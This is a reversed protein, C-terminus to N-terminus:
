THYAILRDYARTAKRGVTLMISVMLGGVTAVLAGGLTGAFIAFLAATVLVDVLWHFRMLTRWKVLRLSFTVMTATATAALAIIIIPTM